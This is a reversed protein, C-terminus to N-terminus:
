LLSHRGRCCSLYETRQCQCALGELGRTVHKQQGAHGCPQGCHVNRETECERQGEGYLLTIRGYEGDVHALPLVGERMCVCSQWPHSRWRSKM